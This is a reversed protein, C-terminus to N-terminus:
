EDSPSDGTIVSWLAEALADNEVMTRSAIRVYRDGQPMTKGACHKILINHEIFLKETLEPSSMSGDPLRCLIFNADPRYVTLGPIASLRRYLDDCAARVRQCSRIFQSQYRPALRLFMEAFGNINWIPLEARVADVFQQNDTLLYGLRLGGIGYCKSLSKIIVLNQHQELEGELTSGPADETFDIFSEDVVLMIEKEALLKTLRLLDDKPVALSTPNNPNLVVAIEAGQSVAEEAFRDVDLQFSPAELAFEIVGGAPAANVWENFSPVPLILRRGLRRDIIKILESAGNGVVIRSPPQDILTGVLAALERQASTYHLVLHPMNDTFEQLMAPPPFYLNYLLAHDVFDYRWYDGHLGSIFDYRQKQDAFLYNAASLDDQNDIEFWRIDDCRLATLAPEHQRCLAHLVTEYFDNVDGASIAADLRPLFRHRLFDGSFRYINVTKMTDSYDFGPGQRSSGILSEIRNDQGLRVITGSMWPQHRVVAAQNEGNDRLLRDILEQDFFVDAELLLINEGLHERALWLSYINNTTAYRKSEVYTIGMGRFSSGIRRYIKEKLHGVVIVAQEIGANALCTLTNILIPVGNVPVLCKPQADTFPRLRKGKGAALIIAKQVQPRPEM